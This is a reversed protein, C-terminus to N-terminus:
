QAPQWRYAAGDGLVKGIGPFAIHAAAVWYGKAKSDLMAQLRVKEADSPTSDFKITVAPDKFQVAAVHVLDGWAVLTESGSTVRYLTHGETHGAAGIAQIGPVVTDGPKFTALKGAASYPQLAAIAVDFSGKVSDDVKAVNGKDTWFAAESKDLHVTANPFLAKGDATLGGIHDIHLHTILVDDIDQPQYGAAKLNEALKGLSPGFFGGAGTDILVQKAGTDILFANVATTVNPDEGLIQKVEGPKADVLLQGMPLAVTGDSLAVVTFSGLKMKYVGDAALAPLSFSAVSALLFATKKFM